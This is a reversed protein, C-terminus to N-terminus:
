EEARASDTVLYFVGAEVEPDLVLAFEGMLCSDVDLRWGTSNPKWQRIDEVAAYPLCLGTVPQGRGEVDSLADYLAPPALPADYCFPGHRDSMLHGGQM